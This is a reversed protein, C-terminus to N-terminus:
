KTRICEECVFEQKLGDVHLFLRNCSTCVRDYHVHILGGLADRVIKYMHKGPIVHIVMDPIEPHNRMFEEYIEWKVVGLQRELTKPKEM